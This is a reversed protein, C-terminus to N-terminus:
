TKTNLTIHNGGYEDIFEGPIAEITKVALLKLVEM